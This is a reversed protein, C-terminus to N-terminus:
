NSSGSSRAPRSEVDTVDEAVAHTKLKPSVQGTVQSTWSDTTSKFQGWQARSSQSFSSFIFPTVPKGTLRAWLYRVGFVSAAVLAAFLFSALLVLGFMVWVLRLLLRLVAAIVDNM